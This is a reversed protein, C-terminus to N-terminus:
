TWKLQEDIPQMEATITRIDNVCLETGKDEGEIVLIISTTVAEVKVKCEAIQGDKSMAKIVTTGPTKGTINGSQDVAAITTNESEWYLDTGMSIPSVRASLSTTEGSKMTILNQDLTVTSPEGLEPYLGNLRWTRYTIGELEPLEKIGENLKRM